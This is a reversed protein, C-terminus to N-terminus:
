WRPSLDMWPWCHRVTMVVIQIDSSLMEVEVRMTSRM